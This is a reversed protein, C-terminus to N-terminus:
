LKPTATYIRLSTVLNRKTLIKKNARDWIYLRANLVLINNKLLFFISIKPEIKAAILIYGYALIKLYFYCLFNGLFLPFGMGELLTPIATRRKTMLQQNNTLFYLYCM